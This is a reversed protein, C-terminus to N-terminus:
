EELCKELSLIDMPSITINQLDSKHLKILEVEIEQSLLDNMKMNFEEINTIDEISGDNNTIINGDSNKKAYEMIINNRKDDIVKKIPEMEKINKAISCAINLKMEKRILRSFADCMNLFDNGSMKM